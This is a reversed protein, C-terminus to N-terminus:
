YANHQSPIGGTRFKGRALAAIATIALMIIDKSDAKFIIASVVAIITIGGIALDVDDFNVKRM